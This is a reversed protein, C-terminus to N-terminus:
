PPAGVTTVLTSVAGADMLDAAIQNAQDEILAIIHGGLGGGSLKAGLAGSNKATQILHDLESTSVGLEVLLDHNQDMLSGLELPSGAEIQKLANESIEGISTFIQNYGEPDNMWGQRVQGVANLTNGPRGSDAILISFPTPIELFRFKEGKRYYLPKQHSVVTNDIGSPTGHHIKEIEFARLSVQDDTLRQGLFASFARILSASIAAGSGLGASAPISSSLTIRCAPLDELPHEGAAQSIAARLPHDPDLDLLQASLSIDPADIHIDGSQGKIHPTVIARAQVAQVPIAIAPEGYVVAHEGFLIIKGPATATFAPM